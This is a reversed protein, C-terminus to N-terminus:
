SQRIMFVGCAGAGILISFHMGLALEGFLEIQPSVASIPSPAALNLM